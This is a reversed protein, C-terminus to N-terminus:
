ENNRWNEQPILKGDVEVLCGTWFDYKTVRNTNEGLSKCSKESFAIVTFMFTVTIVVIILTIGLCELYTRMGKM